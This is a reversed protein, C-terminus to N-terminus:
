NKKKRGKKCAFYLCKLFEWGYSEFWYFRSYKNVRYAKYKEKARMCVFKFNPNTSIGGAVFNSIIGDYVFIKINKKRMRLYLEFDSYIRFEENFPADKYLESRLFMSPHNWHRSTVIGNKDDKSMKNVVSGDTNYYHIGGYFLDVENERYCDNVQKLADTEYWDGANLFSIFDGTAYHIGKNMAFYVGNDKESVVTLKIGLSEFKVRYEEVIDLTKDTSAGDIIIYEYPLYKQEVVSQITKRLAEGANYTVTVVTFRLNM